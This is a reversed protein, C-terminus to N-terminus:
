KKRFLYNPNAAVVHYRQSSKVEAVVRCTEWASGDRSDDFLIFGGPDLFQDVHTFDRKVFDYTHNGDIYCFSIPGGLKLERGLVDTAAQGQTWAAFFEDSFMEVTYPLDYRAFTQINRIYSGRVFERYDNHSLLPSGGVPADPRAGEFIWRDCTVLRNKVAYKEKLHTIVNTSLGCFSGIEIMPALSPLNGIVFNFADINGPELMGANAFTLWAIYETWGNALAPSSKSSSNDVSQPGAAPASTWRRLRNRFRQTLSRM